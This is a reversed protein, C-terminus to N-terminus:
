RPSLLLLGDESSLDMQFRSLYNLGLLGLGPQDPIDLVLAKVDYEVWGGIELASVVVEKAAVVGGATSVMRDEGNQSSPTFELNLAEVVASPLTVLSAGTDVLFEQTLAENIMATVPIRNSGPTFRITIKGESGKMDSIRRALLQYRDLYAPPYNRAYLLQEADQWNNNLLALEVGLLHLYPDNPYYARASSYVSSSGGLDQNNVLLQLWDQYLNLHLENLYPVETGGSKVIGSGTSSILKIATDYGQVQVVAPVIDMLLDIDNIGKLAEATLVTIVEKQKGAQLAQTVLLRIKKVVETPLLHFPTDEVNLKPASLFANVLTAIKKTGISDQMVLGSAFQEERGNAFTTFYFRSVWSEFKLEDVAKENLLYGNMLWQGFSWGVIKDNQVFVGAETIYDPMATEVLLGQVKGQVLEIDKYQLNSEISHWDVAKARDWQMLEPGALPANNEFHWLGVYDGVQWLGNKVEANYGGDTRYLWRNGALVSRTPLALWGSGAMASRFKVVEQGWPDVVQLWGGVVEKRQALAQKGLSAASAAKEKAKAVQNKDTGDKASRRFRESLERRKALKREKIKAQEAATLQAQENSPTFISDRFFVMFGSFWIFMVCSIIFINRGTNKKPRRDLRLPAGCQSCHLESESNDTNCRFCKM